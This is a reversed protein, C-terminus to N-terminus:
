QADESRSLAGDGDPAVRSMAEGLAAFQEPSLQDVLNARVARIHGPAAESLTAFGHDTLVANIGRGDVPCGRREVFGRREMRAVTHTIRSRSQVMSRALEAMRLTRGPAESLRVMVEYEWLSLGSDRELQRGLAESLRAAGTVYERWWRLQEASLWLEDADTESGPTPDPVGCRPTTMTLVERNGLLAL